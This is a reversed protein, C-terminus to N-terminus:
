LPERKRRATRVVAVCGWAGGAGSVGGGGCVKESIGRNRRASRLGQGASGRDGTVPEKRSDRKQGVTHGSSMECRVAGVKAGSVQQRSKEPNGKQRTKHGDSSLFFGGM